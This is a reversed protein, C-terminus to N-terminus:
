DHQGVTIESLAMNFDGRHFELAQRLSDTDEFGMDKFRRLASGYRFRQGRTILRNVIGEQFVVEDEDVSPERARQRARPPLSKEFMQKIHPPAKGGHLMQLHPQRNFPSASLPERAPLPSLAPPPPSAALAPMAPAAREPHLLAALREAGSQEAPAATYPDSAVARGDFSAPSRVSPALPEGPLPSFDFGHAPTPPVEVPAAAAHLPPDVPAPPPPMDCVMHGPNASLDQPMPREAETSSFSSAVFALFAFALLALGVFFIADSSFNSELKEELDFGFGLDGFGAFAGNEGSEFSFAQPPGVSAPPEPKAPVPAPPLQTAWDPAVAPAVSAAPPEPTPATTPQAFWSSPQSPQEPWSYESPPVPQESLGPGIGVLESLGPAVGVPLSGAACSWCAPFAWVVALVAVAVGVCRFDFGRLGAEHHHMAPEPSAPALSPPRSPAGEIFTRDRFSVSPRPTPGSANFSIRRSAAVSAVFGAAFNQSLPTHPGSMRPNRTPVHSGQHLFAHVEQGTLHEEDNDEYSVHYFREGTNADADIKVVQGYYWQGGFSKRIKGYLLPDRQADQDPVPVLDKPSGSLRHGYSSRASGGAWLSGGRMPTPTGALSYPAAYAMGYTV